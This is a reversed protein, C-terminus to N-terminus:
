KRFDIGLYRIVLFYVLGPISINIFLNLIRDIASSEIYFVTENLLFFIAIFMAFSAIVIKPLYDFNFVIKISNNKLVFIYLLILNSVGAISTALALGVHGIITSLLISLILNVLMAVFSAKVPTRTDGQSVFFTVLVKALSFSTLGISYAVLSQSTLLADDVSFSEYQLTSFIIPEALMILGISSPVTFILIYKIATNLIRNFESINKDNFLSSLKTLSVTSISISIIALPLEMFRDSYYLWTVSGSVLFTAIALDIFINIQTISVSFLTPLIRKYFKKTYSNSKWVFSPILKLKYLFPIQFFFQLLGGFFVGWALAFIPSEFHDYFFLIFIILIVNLLVPTFSQIAYKEYFNFISGAFASISIFFLYFGTIRLMETALNYQTPDDNIFYGWAFIMIFIPSLSVLLLTLLTLIAFFKTGVINIVFKLQDNKKAEALIPVFVQAFASEGFMRRFFNPIKFAVFFADTYLSAGYFIAILQDRVLGLIRSLFTLSAFIFSSKFLSKPM